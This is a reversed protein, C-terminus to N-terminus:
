AFAARARSTRIPRPASRSRVLVAAFNTKVEIERDFGAGPDRDMRTFYSRAYCYPCAHACGRYPNLSWQFPMGRVRTLATKCESEVFRVRDSM